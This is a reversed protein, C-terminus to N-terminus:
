YSDHMWNKLKSTLIDLNWMLTRRRYFLPKVINAATEAIEEANM